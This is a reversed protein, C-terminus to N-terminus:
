LLLRLDLDELSPDLDDVEHAGEGLARLDPQESAGAGALGDDDLLEDAVDGILVFSSRDERAHPLPRSSRDDKTSIPSTASSSRSSSPRAPAPAESCGSRRARPSPACSTSSRSGLRSSRSRRRSSQWRPHRATSPGAHPANPHPSTTSRPASSM